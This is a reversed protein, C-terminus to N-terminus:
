PQLGPWNPTSKFDEPVFSYLVADQPRSQIVLRNRLIGERRAGAKEAVRQSPQNDVGVLIELRGLGIEKLGFWAVLRTAASAFGHGTRSSRVWYGLNAFNHARNVGNLGVSGLFAGDKADFIAFSYQSDKAWEADRTLVFNTSDELSHNPLCWLMSTSLEKISERTAAFQEPIDALCFRRIGVVGDSLLAQARAGKGIVPQAQMSSGIM